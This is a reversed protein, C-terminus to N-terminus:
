KQDAPAAEKPAAAKQLEAKLKQVEETLAAAQGRAVVLANNADDRQRQIEVLYRQMMAPDVQPQQAAAAVTMLLLAALIRM